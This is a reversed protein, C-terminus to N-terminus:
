DYRIWGKLFGAPREEMDQMARSLGDLPYSHTLLRRLPFVGATAAEVAARMGAVYIRPDREHAIVAAVMM